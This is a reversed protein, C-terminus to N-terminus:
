PQQRRPPLDPSPSPRDPVVGDPRRVAIWLGREGDRDAVFAIVDGTDSIDADGITEWGDVRGEAVVVGGTDLLGEGVLVIPDILVQLPGCVGPFDACDRSISRGSWPPATTPSVRDPASSASPGEVVADGQREALVDTAGQPTAVFVVRGDANITPRGVQEFREGTAGFASLGLALDVADTAGPGSSRTVITAIDNTGFTEQTTFVVEGSDNLQPEGKVFIDSADIPLGDSARRRRRRRRPQRGARVRVAGYRDLDVPLAGFAVDGDGNISPGLPTGPAFFDDVADYLSDTRRRGRRELDYTESM